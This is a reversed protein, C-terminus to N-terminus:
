NRIDEIYHRSRECFKMRLIFKLISLLAKVQIKKKWEDTVTYFM